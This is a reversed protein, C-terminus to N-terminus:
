PSWPEGWNAALPCNAGVPRPACLDNAAAGFMGTVSLVTAYASTRTLPFSRGPWGAGDGEDLNRLQLIFLQTKLMSVGSDDSCQRWMSRAPSSPVWYHLPIAQDETPRRVCLSTLLRAFASFPDYIGRFFFQTRTTKSHTTREKLPIRNRRAM